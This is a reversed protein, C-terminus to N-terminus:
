LALFNKIIQTGTSGSKETHFQMAFFNKYQVAASFPEPYAGTAITYECVPLYYSHVFYVYDQEKVERFLDSQLNYITNWGMHPVKLDHNFRKVDIPLINLLDTDNEESHRCLLQIGLCIGLFPQTLDPIVKDLERARLEQMASSAEGEGPFIIKDAARIVEPDCSLQAEVGLRELAFKVSQVNGGKYDIIVVSM